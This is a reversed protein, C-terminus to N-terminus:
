ESANPAKFVSHMLEEFTGKGSYRDFISNLADCREKYNQVQGVYAEKLQFELESRHARITTERIIEGLGKKPVIFSSLLPGTDSPHDKLIDIKIQAASLPSIVISV